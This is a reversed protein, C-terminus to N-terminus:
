LTVGSPGEKKYPSEIKEFLYLSLNRSKQSAFLHVPLWGERKLSYVLQDPKYRKYRQIVLTSETKDNKQIHALKDVSYSEPISCGQLSFHYSFHINKVNECYRRIINYHWRDLANDWGVDSSSGSLRPEQKKIHEPQDIPGLAHFFDFALLDGQTLQVFNNHIFHLEDQLNYFITFAVVVRRRYPVVPSIQNLYQWLNRFDGEIGYVDVHARHGVAQKMTRHAHRLLPSSAEVLFVRMKKFFPAMHQALVAEDSANGPGLIILDVETILREQALIHGVLEAVKSYSISRRIESYDKQQSVQIWDESSMPDLYFGTQDVYPYGGNIQKYLDIMVKAPDFHPDFWCNFQPSLEKVLKENSDSSSDQNKM